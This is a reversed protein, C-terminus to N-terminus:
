KNRMASYVRSPLLREALANSEDTNIQKLYGAMRVMAKRVMTLNDKQYGMFGFLVEHGDSLGLQQSWKRHQSSHLIALVAM